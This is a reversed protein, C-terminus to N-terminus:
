RYLQILDHMVSSNPEPEAVEITELFIDSSSSVPETLFAKVFAVPKLDDANGHVNHLGCNVVAFYLVRRDPSDSPLTPGSYCRKVLANGQEKTTGPNNPNPIDNTDIEKRYADYRTVVDGPANTGHNVQWYQNRNWDGQGFRCTGAKICSDRPLAMADQSTAPASTNCANGGSLLGKTVNVAPRYAPNKKDANSGFFPNEYMDFRTNLATRVADAQGPRVSLKAAYCGPSTGKAMWIALQQTSQSGDPTDLLGFTGPAWQGGNGGSHSKVLVQDGRHANFPTETTAGAQEYPNCVMLPPIKCAVRTFGATAVAGIRLPDSNGTLVPMLLPVATRPAMRVQIFRAEIDSSAPADPDLASLFTVDGVTVGAGASDTAFTQANGGGFAGMAATRARDRAGDQGNLEAAGALAAADAAQQLETELHMARGLDIALGGAGFMVGLGLAVYIAASGREDKVLRRLRM